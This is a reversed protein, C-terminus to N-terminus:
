PLRLFIPIKKLPGAVIPWAMLAKGGEGELNIAMPVDRELEFFDTKRLQGAKVVGGGGEGRLARAM